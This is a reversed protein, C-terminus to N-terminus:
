SPLCRSSQVKAPDGFVTEQERISGPLLHREETDRHLPRNSHSSHLAIDAFSGSIQQRFYRSALRYTSGYSKKRAECPANIFVVLVIHLWLGNRCLKGAAANKTHECM